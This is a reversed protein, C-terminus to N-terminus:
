RIGKRLKGCEPCDEDSEFACVVRGDHEVYAPVREEELYRACGDDPCWVTLTPRVPPM